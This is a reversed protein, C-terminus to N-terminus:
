PMQMTQSRTQPRSARERGKPIASRQRYEAFPTRLNLAFARVSWYWSTRERTATAEAVLREHRADRMMDDIKAEVLMGPLDLRSNNM